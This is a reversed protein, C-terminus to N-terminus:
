LKRLVTNFSFNNDFTNHEVVEYKPLNITGLWEYFEDSSFERTHTPDILGRGNHTADPMVLCVYGGTMTVRMFERLASEQNRLHEFVHNATVGAFMSDFFPLPEDADVRMHPFGQNPYRRTDPSIGCYKDTGLTSPAIVTSTGVGLFIKGIQTGFRISWYFDFARQQYGTINESLSMKREEGLEWYRFGPVSSIVEASCNKTLLLLELDDYRLAAHDANDVVLLSKDIRGDSQRSYWRLTTPDRFKQM